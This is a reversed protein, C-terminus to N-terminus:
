GVSSTVLVYMWSKHESFYLVEKGQWDESRVVKGTELGKKPPFPSKVSSHCVLLSCPLCSGHAAHGLMNFPVLGNVCQSFDQVKISIQLQTEQLTCSCEYIVIDRKAFLVM